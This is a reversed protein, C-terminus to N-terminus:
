RLLLPVYFMFRAATATPTATISVTPTPTAPTGTPTVTISVTPTPTAPTGTPTATISVTPTPTVPTGTATPSGTPTASPSPTPTLTPANALLIAGFQAAVPLSVSGGQVSYSAGSLLDTLVTGDPLSVPVSASQASTGNNLVVVITESADWRQYAYLHASDDILLTQVDGRRLAAHDRRLNILQKFHAYMQQNPAGGQDAWPYTRRNDPDGGGPLAVEDGYYVSPAGPLTMQLLALLELRNLDGGLLNLARPSDHSSILNMLARWSSPAFMSRFSTYSQDFASPANGNAFGVGWDRFCYNMASDLESANLYSQYLGWDCGGSVEGLMLTQSTGYTTKVYPRLAQWWAHTIDQAVDFRWGAIGRDLWYQAVSVGGPSQLSGGRFFFDKVADTEQLEPITEFNYWGHWGWGDACLDSGSSGPTFWPRYPSAAAECAGIDSWQNKGYGDIYRSDSGVHNFVGDLIVRLGHADAAAILADFTALTGLQPNIAYYDNTDYGHNSSAAFIPNLYLTNVGLDNFYGSNITDIIGQLDGGFFDTGYSPQDPLEGWASHLSTTCPGGNCTTPGYVQHPQPDNSPDGNRFRDPFIQYIVADQMWDPVTYDAPPPTLTGLRWSRDLLTDSWAGPGSNGSTALVHYYGARSGDRVRFQYWQDIATAPAPVHLEWLDYGGASSVVSASYVHTPAALPAGTEWVLAAVSSADSACTRLRLTATMGLEIAGLPDRYAAQTSDHFIAATTLQDDGPQAGSCDASPTATATPTSTPTSTPTATAPTTTPSPTPTSTPTASGVTYFYDDPDDNFGRIHQGLPNIYQGNSLKLVATAPGDQVIVRYYITTGASHAPISGRWITYATSPQGRFTATVTGAASMAVTAATTGNWYRISASQVDSQAALASIVVSTSPTISGDSEGQVFPYPQEPVLELRPNVSSASHYLQNWLVNNDGGGFAQAYPRWSAAGLVLIILLLGAARRRM